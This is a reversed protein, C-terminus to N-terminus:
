QLGQRARWGSLAPAARRARGRGGGRRVGGGPQRQALLAGRRRGPGARCLRVGRRVDAGAHQAPVRRLLQRGDARPVARGGDGGGPGPVAGTRSRNGPVPGPWQAQVAVGPRRALRLRYLDTGAGPGHGAAREGRVRAAARVPLCASLRRLQPLPQGPLQHRGQRIGAAPDHRPLGRLVRRLVPLCQLDAHRARSRIRRGDLRRGAAQREQRAM